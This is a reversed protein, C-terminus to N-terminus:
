YIFSLIDCKNNGYLMYDMYCQRDDLVFDAPMSTVRSYPLTWQVLWVIIIIIIAMYLACGALALSGTSCTPPFEDSLLPQSVYPHAPGRALQACACLAPRPLFHLHIDAAASAEPSRTNALQLIIILPTLLKYM